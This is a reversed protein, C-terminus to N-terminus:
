AAWRGYHNANAALPSKQDVLPTTITSTKCFGTPNITILVRFSASRHCYFRLILFNIHKRPSKSQSEPDLLPDPM